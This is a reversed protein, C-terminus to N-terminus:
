ATSKKAHCIFWYNGIEFSAINFQVTGVLYEIDIYEFFRKPMAIRERNATNRRVDKFDKVLHKKKLPTSWFSDIIIIHEADKFKNLLPLLASDSFHSMFFSFVVIKIPEGLLKDLKFDAAFVNATLPILHENSPIRELATKNVDVAYYNNVRNKLNSYWQASGSGIDILNGAFEINNLAGIIMERDQQMWANEENVKQQFDLYDGAYYQQIEPSLMREVGDDLRQHNNNMYDLILGVIKETNKWDINSEYRIITDARKIWLNTIEGEQIKAQTRDIFSNIESVPRPFPLDVVRNKLREKCIEAPVLLTLCLLPEGTRKLVDFLLKAVEGVGSCEIFQKKNPVVRSFFINRAIEEGEKSGDSYQRRFEDIQIIEYDSSAAIMDLITSKGSGANGFLITKM